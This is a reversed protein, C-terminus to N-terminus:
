SIQGYPNLGGYGGQERSYTGYSRTGYGGFDNGQGFTGFTGFRRVRGFPSMPPSRFGGGAMFNMPRPTMQDYTGFRGGASAGFGMPEQYPQQPALMMRPADPTLSPMPTPMPMSMPSAPPAFPSGQAYSSGTPGSDQQAFDSMNVMAPGGYDIPSMYLSNMANRM